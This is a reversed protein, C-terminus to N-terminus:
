IKIILNRLYALMKIATALILRMAVIADVANGFLTRIVALRANIQAVNATTIDTLQTTINGKITAADQGNFVANFTNDYAEQPTWTAYNPLADFKGKSSAYDVIKNFIVLEGATLDPTYTVQTPPNAQEDFTFIRDLNKSSLNMLLSINTEPPIAHTSM